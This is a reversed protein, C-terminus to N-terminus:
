MLEVEQTTYMRFIASKNQEMPGIPFYGIVEGKGYYMHAEGVANPDPHM